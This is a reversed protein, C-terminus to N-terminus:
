NSQSSVAAIAGASGAIDSAGAPKDKAAEEGVDEATLEKNTKPDVIAFRKTGKKAIKLISDFAYNRLYSDADESRHSVAAIAGADGKAAIKVVADLAVKRVCQDADQLPGSLAAM